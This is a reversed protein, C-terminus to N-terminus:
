LADYNKKKTLNLIKSLSSYELIFLVPDNENQFFGAIINSNSEYLIVTWWIYKFVGCGQRKGM